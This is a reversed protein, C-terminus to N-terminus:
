NPSPLLISPGTPCNKNNTIGMSAFIESRVDSVEHAALTLTGPKDCALKPEALLGTLDYRFTQSSKNPVNVPFSCVHEIGEKDVCLVDDSDTFNYNLKGCDPDPQQGSRPSGCFADAKLDSIGSVREIAGAGRGVNTVTLEIYFRPSDEFDGRRLTVSTPAGQGSGDDDIRALLRPEGSEREGPQADRWFGLTASFVPGEAQFYKESNDLQKQQVFLADRQTQLEDAQTKLAHKATDLEAQQTQLSKNQSELERTQINYSFLSVFLALAAVIVAWQESKSDSLNQVFHKM